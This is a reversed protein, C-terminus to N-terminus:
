SSEEGRRKMVEKMSTLGLTKKARVSVRDNENTASKQNQIHLQEHFSQKVPKM